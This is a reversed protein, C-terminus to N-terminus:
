PRDAQPLHADEVEVAVHEAQAVYVRSCGRGFRIRRRQERGVIVLSVLILVAGVGYLTTRIAVTATAAVRLQEILGWALSVESVLVGASVIAVHLPTLGAARGEPTSRLLRYARWHLRIVTVLAGVNLLLLISVCLRLWLLSHVPDPV